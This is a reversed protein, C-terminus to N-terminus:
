LSSLSVSVGTQADQYMIWYGVGNGCPIFSSLGRLSKPPMTGDSSPVGYCIYRPKGEVYLVGFAYHKGDGYDIRAFRSGEM